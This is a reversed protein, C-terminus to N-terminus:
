ADKIDAAKTRWIEKGTAKELAQVTADQTARYLMGNYIAAGRNVIGCCVTRTTEPPYEIASVWIQRGTTADIAHTKDHTTVYMVGKYILPHAEQGRNDSLSYNWVPVLRKVSKKNIQVLPSYRQQGQGMGYTVVNDPTHADLNLDAVSQASTYSAAGLGLAATAVITTIRVM